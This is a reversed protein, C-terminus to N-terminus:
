VPESLALVRDKAVYTRTLGAVQRFGFRIIRASWITPGGAAPRPVILVRIVSAANGVLVVIGAILVLSRGATMTGGAFGAGHRREVPPRASRPPGVRPGLWWTPWISRTWIPGCTSASM